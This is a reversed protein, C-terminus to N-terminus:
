WRGHRQWYAWANSLSGYKKVAYPILYDRLQELPMLRWDPLTNSMKHCPWFQALGCAGSWPNLADPRWHSEHWVIWYLGQYDAPSLTARAWAM